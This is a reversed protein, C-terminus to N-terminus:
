VNPELKINLPFNNSRAIATIEIAKQEALEYPMIAVTASGENHIKVTIEKAAEVEYNFFTVLTHLVFEMTTVSDNLFIVKFQPPPNIDQRVEIKKNTQVETATMKSMKITNLMVPLIGTM